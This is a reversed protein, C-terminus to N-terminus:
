NVRGKPTPSEPTPRRSLRVMVAGTRGGPNAEVQLGFGNARVQDLMEAPFYLEPQGTDLMATALLEEVLRKERLVSEIQAALVKVHEAEAMIRSTGEAIAVAEGAYNRVFDDSM